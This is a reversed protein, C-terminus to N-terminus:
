CMCMEMAYRRPFQDLVIILATLGLPTKEWHQLKGRAAATMVDQYRVRIHEDLQDVTGIPRMQSRLRLRSHLSLSLRLSLSFFRSLSRM